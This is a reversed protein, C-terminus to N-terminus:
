LSKLLEVLAGPNAEPTFTRSREVLEFRGQPLLEALRQGHARPFFKDGAAWIVRAPRDFAAVGESARRMDSRRAQTLLRAFDHRVGTSRRLRGTYSEMIRPDIPEHTAWGYTVPLRQVLKMRVAHGLLWLAPPVRCTPKLWAVAKPPYNDFADCSTLVLRGIREPRSTVVAQSIAGGTDNGVLTVDRLDLAEFFDALINAQGFLSCDDVTEPLPLSHGGLPLDPVICRYRDALQPAVKRWLDGNVGAGHAFVMEPGDGRERYDLLGAMRREGLEESVAM